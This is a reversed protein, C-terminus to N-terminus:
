RIEAMQSEVLNNTFRPYHGSEENFIRKKKNQLASTSSKFFDDEIDGSFNIKKQENGKTPLNKLLGNVNAYIQNAQKAINSPNFVSM